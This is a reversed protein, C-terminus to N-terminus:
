AVVIITHYSLHMPDNVETYNRKSHVCHTDVLEHAGISLSGITCITQLRYKQMTKAVADRSQLTAETNNLNCTDQRGIKGGRLRGPTGKGMPRKALAGVRM